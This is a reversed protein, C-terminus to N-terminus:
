AKPFIFILELERGGQEKRAQLSAHIALSLRSKLDNPNSPEYARAHGIPQCM